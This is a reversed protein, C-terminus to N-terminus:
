KGNTYDILKSYVYRLLIIQDKIHEQVASAKENCYTNCPKVISYDFWAKCITLFSNRHHWSNQFAKLYETWTFCYLSFLNEPANRLIICFRVVHIYTHIHIRSCSATLSNILLCLYNLLMYSTSLTWHTAIIWQNTANTWSFFIFM